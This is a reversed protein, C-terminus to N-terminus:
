VLGEHRFATEFAAFTRLAWAAAVDRQRESAAAGFADLEAVFAKWRAAASVGATTSTGGSVDIEQKVWGAAVTGRLNFSMRGLQWENVFGVQGGHFTNDTEFRDFSTIGTGAPLPAAGGATLNSTISLKDRLSMYRYGVLM